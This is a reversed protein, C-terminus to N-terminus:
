LNRLHLDEIRRTEIVEDKVTARMSLDVTITRVEAFTENDYTLELEELTPSSQKIESVRVSEEDAETVWYLTSSAVYFAVYDYTDAIIDGDEDVAPLELVLSSTASTYTDAAFARSALARRAPAIAAEFANMAAAASGSTALYAQQHGYLTNFTFFLHVLGLLAITSGRNM